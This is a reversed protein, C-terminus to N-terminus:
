ELRQRSPARPARLQRGAPADPPLQAALLVVVVQGERGAADLRQLGRQPGLLREVQLAHEPRVQAVVPDAVQPGIACTLAGAARGAQRRGRLLM